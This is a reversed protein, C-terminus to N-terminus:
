YMRQGPFGGPQSSGDSSCARHLTPIACRRGSSRSTQMVSRTILSLRPNRRASPPLDINVPRYPTKHKPQTTKSINKLNKDHRKMIDNLRCCPGHPMAGRPTGRHPVLHLPAPSSAITHQAPHTHPVDMICCLGHLVTTSPPPHHPVNIPSQIQIQNGIKLSVPLRPPARHRGWHCLMDTPWRQHPSRTVCHRLVNQCDAARERHGQVALASDPM